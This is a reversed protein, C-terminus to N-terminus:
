FLLLFNTVRTLSVEGAWSDLGGELHQCVKEGGLMGCFGGGGGM